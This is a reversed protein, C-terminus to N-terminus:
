KLQLYISRLHRQYLLYIASKEVKMTKFKKDACILWILTM